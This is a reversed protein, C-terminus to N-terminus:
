HINTYHIIHRSFNTQQSSVHRSIYTKIISIHRSICTQIISIHRSIYTLLIYEHRSIYTQIISIHRSIYTQQSSVHRSRNVASISKRISASMMLLNLWVLMTWKMPTQKSFCGLYTRPISGCVARSSTYQAIIRVHM